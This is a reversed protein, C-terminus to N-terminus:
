LYISSFGALTRLPKTVLPPALYFLYIDWRKPLTRRAIEGLEVVQRRNRSRPKMVDAALGYHCHEVRAITYPDM